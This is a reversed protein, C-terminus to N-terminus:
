EDDEEGESEAKDEATPVAAYGIPAARAHRYLLAASAAAVACLTGCLRLVHAVPDVGVRTLILVVLINLPIRFVNLVTGRIADPIVKSRLSFLLPFYLGVSMEFFCFALFTPALSTATSSAFLAAAALAMSPIMVSERSSQLSGCLTSGIMVFVMFTAFILGFPLELKMASAFQDLAPGFLCVFGYMAGEFCAQIIGVYLISIDNKIAALVGTPKEAAVGAAPSSVAGAAGYNESWTAAVIAFGVVAPVIALLFPIRSTGLADAASNAALGAVIAVVSNLTVATSFLPGLAAAPFGRAFFESTMWTEFVSFLLSTSIGGFVRGLILIPLSPVQICLCSAAFTLPYLLCLKRRGWKDSLSGAFSGLVASSMFGIVSLTSIWALDLGHEKYVSYLYPGCLWDSGNVLLYVALYNTRFRSFAEKQAPSAFASAGDGGAATGSSRSTFFFLSAAVTAAATFITSFM